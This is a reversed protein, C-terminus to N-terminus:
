IEREGSYVFHNASSDKYYTWEEAELIVSGDQYRAYARKTFVRDAIIKYVIATNFPIDKMGHCQLGNMGHCRVIDGVRLERTRAEFEYRMRTAPKLPQKALEAKYIMRSIKRGLEAWEKDTLNSM